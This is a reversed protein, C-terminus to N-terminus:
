YFFGKKIETEKAVDDNGFTVDKRKDLTLFFLFDERNTLISRPM